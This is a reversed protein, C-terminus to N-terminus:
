TGHRTSGGRQTGDDAGEGIDALRVTVAAAHAGFGESTALRTMAAAGRRLAAEDYCLLSMKRTFTDVNLPSWFRATGSTPLVHSPGAVYDGTTQPTMHGLIVAGAHRVSALAAMPDAVMLALHEPACANALDLCEDLSGAVVIAGNVAFSREVVDRRELRRAQRGLEVEVRDALDADNTILYAACAPDHEAQSLMDAAVYTARATSDAVVCVESPGAVMDMDAVGWLM